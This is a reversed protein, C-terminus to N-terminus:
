RVGLIGLGDGVARTLLSGVAGPLATVAIAVLLVSLFIQLPMGLLWVNVQPAAKSLLALVVQTAFLVALVPAVIELASTFFTAFDVLLVRAMTGLSSLAIGPAQFSRVFGQVMVLYGGSVFLLVIGVQEYLQGFLPTQELSLPDMSTPLDLGGLLDVLGGATALTGIVMAVLFGLVAGSLVQVVVAGVLAGTSDPVGAAEMAPTALLGLGAAIAVTAMPPVVRRSSFPPAVALWAVGRATALLFAVLVRYDLHFAM